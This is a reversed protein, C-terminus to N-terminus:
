DYSYRWSYGKATKRKGRCCECIQGKHTNTKESAEKLNDYDGVINGNYDIQLIRANIHARTTIVETTQKQPEPTNNCECLSEIYSRYKNKIFYKIATDVEGPFVVPNSMSSLTWIHDARDLQKNVVSLKISDYDTICKNLVKAIEMDRGLMRGNIDYCNVKTTKDELQTAKKSHVAEHYSSNYLADCWELNEVSNDLTLENKHNIYPLNNPNPIFAGAVVRHIFVIKAMNNKSLRVFLYGKDSRNAYQKLIAGLPHEGSRNVNVIRGFSSVKYLGEYGIIDKWIETTYDM